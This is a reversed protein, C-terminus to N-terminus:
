YQYEQKNAYVIVPRIESKGDSNPKRSGLFVCPIKDNSLDLEAKDYDETYEEYKEIIKEYNRSMFDPKIDKPNFQIEEAGNIKVFGYGLFYFFDNYIDIIHYDESSLKAFVSNSLLSKNIDLLENNDNLNLLKIVGREISSYLEITIKEADYEKRFDVCEDMFWRIIDVPMKSLALYVREKEKSDDILNIYKILAQYVADSFNLFRILSFEDDENEFEMADFSSLLLRREEEIKEEFRTKNSKFTFPIIKTNICGGKKM